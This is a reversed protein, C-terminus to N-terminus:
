RWPASRSSRWSCPGPTRSGPSSPALGRGPRPQPVARRRLDHPDGEHGHPGQRRVPHRPAARPVQRGRDGRRRKQGARAGDRDDAHHRQPAKRRVPRGPRPLHADAARLHARAVQDLTGARRDDLLRHGRGEEAAAGSRGASAVFRDRSPGPAVGPIMPNWLTAPVVDTGIALKRPGTRREMTSAMARQWSGAIQAQQAATFEIRVLKQAEAVTTASIDPGVPPATGFAPPTGAVPTPTPDPVAAARRAAAAGVVGAATRALFKRRSQPM